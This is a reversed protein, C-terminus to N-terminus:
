QALRIVGYDYGKRRYVVSPQGSDADSFLYFDHGVLEMRSLADDVSMPNANHVKRRVVRGPFPEVDDPALNDDHARPAPIDVEPESELEVPPLEDLVATTAGLDAPM